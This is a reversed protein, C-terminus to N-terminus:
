FYINSLYNEIFKNFNCKFIEINFDKIVSVFFCSFYGKYEFSRSNKLIIFDGYFYIIKSIFLNLSLNKNQKDLFVLFCRQKMFITTIVIFSLQYINKLKEFLVFLVEKSIDFLFLDKVLFKIKKYYNIDNKCICYILSNIYLNRIDKIKKVVKKQKDIICLVKEYINENNVSLLNFLKNLNKRRINMYDLVYDGTIAEIRKVNSSINFFKFILFFGIELTSKVHTGCCYDKYFGGFNVVRIVNDDVLNFNINKNINDICSIEYFEEYVLLNDKIFNNVLYEIDFIHNDNLKGPYFFDFSIFNHKIKSSKQLIDCCFIKKVAFYLLHMASHNVTLKKRYSIDYYVNVYDNKNLVGYEVYGVHIIYVGYKLTDVVIFKVSDDFKVIYGKDGKQGGSEPYFVTSNLVVSVNVCSVDVENVFEGNVLIFVVNAVCFNYQYGLFKTKIGFLKSYNLGFDKFKDVKRSKIKQVCLKKNFKNLNVKINYFKCLDVILYLPLGYTDYLLFVIKSSLYKRYDLKSLYYKLINVGNDLTKSFKLEEFYIIKEVFNILEDNLDFDYVYFINILPKVLKFLFLDNIRLIKIYNISRRILKRLVYGRFENSPKIGDLILFIISRIHDSLIYFINRNFDNLKIKFLDILCLIIKSFIDIEFNSRVNQLVMCIRELGMGTDVYKRSLFDIKDFESYVYEMFVINWIELYRDTEKNIIFDSIHGNDFFDYFIETSPGCLGFKSMKWFNDVNFLFNDKIESKGFLFIREKSINIVNTWINFSELDTIHVTVILKDKPINFYNNSTLLEWAYVIAKEKYYSGFSFNGMMEFFTNHRLTYGVNDLDNHKGSIRLCRQVSVVQDHLSTKIGLFIDKFQNMGANTFLLSNDNDSPILSSSKYVIHNKSKFFDLFMFRIEESSKFM